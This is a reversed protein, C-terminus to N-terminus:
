NNWSYHVSYTVTKEEDPQLPVNFEITQADKKDYPLSSASITWNSWRFLHEVIRIEAPETKHNRLKVEYAEDVLGRGQDVHFSTRRREAKLDFVAGTVVRVTEGKPTHNIVDEGTFQLSGDADRRYFRARGKPLPMGLHNQADNKFERTAWVKTRSDTGLTANTRMWENNVDYRQNPDLRLGDYVYVTKSQVTPVRLFEVQKTEGSHLTVPLALTYLHYEDFDKQTVLLEPLNGTGLHTGDTRLFGATAAYMPGEPAVKAVEGAMLRLKASEFARGSRNEMTVWGILELENGREPMVLNYDAAWNFGRTIYSLEADGKGPKDTELVWTLTPKLPISEDLAPFVPQGPLGFELKGDVEIIPQAPQEGSALRSMGGYNNQNGARIVKGKIFYGGNPNNPSTALSRNYVPGGVLFELTQGEYRSLLATVDLPDALYSQEIVRLKRKGSLDRLLVSGPELQGTIGTFEVHDVPNKLDLLIVERVVAFSQNYLTLSPRTDAAILLLSVAPLLFPLIRYRMQRPQVGDRWARNWYAKSRIISRWM